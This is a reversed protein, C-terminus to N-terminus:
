KLVEAVAVHDREIFHEPPPLLITQNPKRIAAARLDVSGGFVWGVVALLVRLRPPLISNCPRMTMQMQM